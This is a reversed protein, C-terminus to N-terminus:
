QGLIRTWKLWEDLFRDAGACHNVTIARTGVSIEFFATILVASRDVQSGVCRRVYRHWTDVPNRREQMAPQQSCVVSRHLRPLQVVVKVLEDKPEVAPSRGGSPQQKISQQLLSNNGARDSIAVNHSGTASM